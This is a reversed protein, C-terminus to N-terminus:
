ASCIIRGYNANHEKESIYCEMTNYKIRGDPTVWSFNYTVMNYGYNSIQPYENIVTETGHTFAKIQNHFYTTVKTAWGKMNDAFGCVALATNIPKLKARMDRNNKLAFFANYNYNSIIAKAMCISYQKEFKFSLSDIIKSVTNKNWGNYSELAFASTSCTLTLLGITLLKKM